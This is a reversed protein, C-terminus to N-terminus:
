PKLEGIIREIHGLCTLVYNLCEREPTRPEVLFGMDIARERAAVAWQEASLLLAERTPPPVAIAEGMPSVLKLPANM